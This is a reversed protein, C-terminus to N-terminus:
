PTTTTGTMCQAKNAGGTPGSHGCHANVTAPVVPTAVSAAAANTVHYLRCALSDGVATISYNQDKNPFAACKTMCDAANQYQPTIVGGAIPADISGCTKIEINCFDECVNGGSCVGPAAASLLDGGPGGHPCHTAPTTMAPTGSHYIRCGLTNGSTDTVKSTGVPFAACSGLCHGMSAYQANAATCNAMIQTCYTPCDLAVTPAADIVVAADVTVSPKDDSCGALLVLSILLTRMPPM